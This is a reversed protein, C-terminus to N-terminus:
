KFQGTEDLNIAQAIINNTHVPIDEQGLEEIWRHLKKELDLYEVAQGLGATQCKPEIVSKVPSWVITSALKM